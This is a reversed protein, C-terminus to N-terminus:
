PPSRPPRPPSGPAARDRAAGVGDRDSGREAELLGALAVFAEAARKHLRVREFRPWLFVGALTSVTGAIMWGLLRSGIASPPAPISVALVFLLQVAPQAAAAYSGFVGLFQVCFAVAFMAVAALWPSPSVLTGIVVLVAGVLVTVSYAAARSARLGGFDAMVMLAFSGFAVFITIQIDRLVFISFAFVLPMVLAVRLARRLSALGPDDPHLRAALQAPFAKSQM